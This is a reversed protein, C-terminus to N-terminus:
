ARPPRFTPPPPLSSPMPDHPAIRAQAQASLVAIAVPLAAQLQTCHLEYCGQAESSCAAHAAGGHEAQAADAMDSLAACEDQQGLETHSAFATASITGGLLVVIVLLWCILPSRRM